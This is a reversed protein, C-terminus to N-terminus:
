GLGTIRFDATEKGIQCLLQRIGTDHLNGILTMSVLRNEGDAESHLYGISIGGADALAILLAFISSDRECTFSTQIRTHPVEDSLGAQSLAEGIVQDQMETLFGYQHRRSAGTLYKLFALYESQLSPPVDASEAQMMAREREPVFVDGGTVKKEAAVREALGMRKLFLAKIQADVADIQARTQELSM